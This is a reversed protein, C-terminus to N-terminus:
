SQDNFSGNLDAFFFLRIFQNYLGASGDGDILENGFVSGIQGFQRLKDIYVRFINESIDAEFLQISSFVVIILVKSNLFDFFCSQRDPPAVLDCQGM